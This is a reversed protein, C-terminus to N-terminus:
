NGLNGLIINKHNFTYIKNKKSSKSYLIFTKYNNELAWKDWPSRFYTRFPTNELGEPFQM